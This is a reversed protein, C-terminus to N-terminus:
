DSIYGKEKFWQILDKLTTEIDRPNHQLAMRAKQHSIFRNGELLIKISEATYLPPKNTLWAMGKVFPLGLRVIWVPVTVVRLPVGKVKAVWGILEQMTLYKGSLFYVEGIEGLHLANCLSHAVDRVDVWDYGGRFVAPIKGQYIQLIAKGQLSLANEPPGIVSTPNVIIAPLGQKCLEMVVKQGDRKSRDYAYGNDGVFARNEDMAKDSPLPDYAHISSVHIVRKLQQRLASAMLVQVCHVNIWAVAGHKDGDISVRGALHILADCGSLFADMSSGDSLDGKFCEVETGNFYTADQHILVRVRFGRKLLEQVVVIGIHGTAGTVAVKKLEM